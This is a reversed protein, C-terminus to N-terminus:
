LLAIISDTMADTISTPHANQLWHWDPSTNVELFFYGGNPTLILDIAGYHLGSKAIFERCQLEVSAPLNAISLNLSELGIPKYDIEDSVPRNICTSFLKQQIFTVRIDAANPIRDQILIPHPLTGSQWDIDFGSQAYYSHISGAVLVHHAGLSKWILNESKGQAFLEFREKSRTVLSRPIEFGVSLALNLQAIPDNARAIAQPSNVTIANCYSLLTKLGAEWEQGDIVKDVTEITDEKMMGYNRLVILSVKDLTFNHHGASVWSKRSQKSYDLSFQLRAPIYSLNIRGYDIRRETLAAGLKDAEYDFIESVILIRPESNIADSPPLLRSTHQQVDIDHYSSLSRIRRIRHASSSAM